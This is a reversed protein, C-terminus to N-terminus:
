LKLAHMVAEACAQPAELPILHGHPLRQFRPAFLRANALTGAMRMEESHEGSVFSVPVGRRQLRGLAM